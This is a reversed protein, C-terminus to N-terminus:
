EYHSIISLIREIPLGVANFYSGRINDPEFFRGAQLAFGGAKDLPNVRRFYAKIQDQDMNTFFLRTKEVFVIKKRVASAQIWLLAVGTYVTQWRGQLFRLFIEAQKMDRPKGIVRNGCYVISDAALITGFSIKQVASMAKGLAHLRVIQSPGKGSVKKEHYEPRIVRFRIGHKKLIQKRRASSSALYIMGAFEQCRKTRRDHGDVLGM